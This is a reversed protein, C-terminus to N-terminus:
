LGNYIYSVIYKTSKNDLLMTIYINYYHGFFDLYTKNLNVINIIKLM